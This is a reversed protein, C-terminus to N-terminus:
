LCLEKQENFSEVPPMFEVTLDDFDGIPMMYSDDRTLQGLIEM